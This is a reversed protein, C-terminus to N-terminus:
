TIQRRNEVISRTGGIVGRSRYMAFGCSHSDVGSHFGEQDLLNLRRRSERNSLMTVESHFANSYDYDDRLESLEDVVCDTRCGEVIFETMYGYLREREILKCKFKHSCTDVGVLYRRLMAPELWPSYGRRAVADHFTRAFSAAFWV